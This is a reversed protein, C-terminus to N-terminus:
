LLREPKIKRYSRRAIWCGVVGTILTTWDGWTMPSRSRHVAGCGLLGGRFEDRPYLNTLGDEDDLTVAAQAKNGISYYMLANADSSHGLGLVHGLEHALTIVLQNFTLQSINAAASTQANLVIGGYVIPSGTVNMTAAPVSDASDGVDASFNADCLILPVQSASGGLFSSVSISTDTSNRQISISTTPVGNWVALADDIAETMTAESVPCNQPNFYITLSKTNWGQLGPALITWGFGAASWFWLGFALIPRTKV